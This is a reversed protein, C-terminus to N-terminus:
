GGAVPPLLAIEDGDSLGAGLDAYVRNVAVAPHAPLRELGPALTRAEDLADAVTSGAPVTVSLEGRGGAFDRYVAFLLLRVTTM